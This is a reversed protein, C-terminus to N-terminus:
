VDSRDPQAFRPLFFDELEGTTRNLHQYIGQMDHIFNFDDAHALHEIRLPIKAHVASLDMEVDIMEDYIGLQIAREAIGVVLDSEKDTFKAFQVTM